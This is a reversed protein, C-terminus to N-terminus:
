DPCALLLHLLEYMLAFDCRRCCCRVKEKCVQATGTRLCGSLIDGPVIGMSAFESLSHSFSPLAALDIARPRGAATASTPSNPQTRSGGNHRSGAITQRVRSSNTPQSPSRVHFYSTTNSIPSSHAPASTGTTTSSRATYERQISRTASVPVAVPSSLSM